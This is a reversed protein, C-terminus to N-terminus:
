ASAFIANTVADATLKALLIGNRHHGTALFLGPLDSKGILPADGNVQPRFSSWTSALTANGLSPALRLTGNLISQVGSATVERRFGVLEMTSGCIVRGDGRPVAYAGGGLVTVRLRPPREELLVIQGRVPRVEAFMEKAGPVLSSWSGAALVVADAHLESAGNGDSLIVGTCKGSHSIVREVTAGSRMEIKTRAIAAVLARLLAPPDIQGDDPFHAASIIEDSLEPEIERARKGDILEARLGASKQWGVLDRLLNAEKETYEARLVGTERYGIDIGTISKLEESWARYEGRAKVFMDVLPGPSHSEIQAGLIGAAASSAEAGPIARELLVVEAGRKDLELATACGMVGGGVIAVRMAPLKADSHASTHATMRNDHDTM